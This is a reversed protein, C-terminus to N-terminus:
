KELGQPGVVKYGKKQLKKGLHTEAAISAKQNYQKGSPVLDPRLKVAKGTVKQSALRGGALHQAYRDEVAISTQGVYLPPLDGKHGRPKNLEIVYLSYVPEWPNVVHGAHRLQNCLKKMQKTAAKKYAFTAELCLDLRPTLQLDAVEEHPRNPIGDGLDKTQRRCVYLFSDAKKGNLGPVKVETVFVRHPM